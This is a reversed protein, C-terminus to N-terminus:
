TFSVQYGTCLKEVPLMEKADLPKEYECYRTITNRYFKNKYKDEYVIWERAYGLLEGTKQSERLVAKWQMEPPPHFRLEETKTNYYFEVWTRKCRYVEWSQYKRLFYSKVKMLYMLANRRDIYAKAEKPEVWSYGSYGGDGHTLNRKPAKCYFYNGTDPDEYMEWEFNFTKKYIAAQRLCSWLRGDMMDERAICENLINARREVTKRHDEEGIRTFFSNLNEERRVMLTEERAQTATPANRIVKDQVLLEIARRKHMDKLNVNCGYVDILLIIVREHSNVVNADCAMHLATRRWRNIMDVAAQRFVYRLLVSLDSPQPITKIFDQDGTLENTVIIGTEPRPDFRALVDEMIEECSRPIMYKVDDDMNKLFYLAADHLWAKEFRRSEAQSLKMEPMVQFIEEVYEEFTKGKKARTKDSYIIRTLNQGRFALYDVVEYSNKMAALHLPTNGHFDPAFIRGGHDILVECCDRHGNLAAIHVANRGRVDIANVEAGYQLLIKCVNAHGYMAAYTLARMRESTHRDLVELNVQVGCKCYILVFDDYGCRCAHYFDLIYARQGDKEMLCGLENFRLKQAFHLHEKSLDIYRDILLQYLVEGDIGKQATQRVWELFEEHMKVSSDTLDIYPHTNQFHVLSSWALIRHMLAMNRHPHFGKSSLIAVIKGSDVGRLLNDDIWQMWDEPFEGPKCRVGPMADGLNLVGATAANYKAERTNEGFGQYRKTLYESIVEGKEVRHWLGTLQAEVVYITPNTVSAPRVEVIEFKIKLNRLNAQRELEALPTANLKELIAGFQALREDGRKIMAIFHCFEDFEIEGSGDKDVLQLMEEAKEISFDMGLYHLIRKTEHKDITGSHNADFKQFLNVMEEFEMPTIIEIFEDPCKFGDVIMAHEQYYRAKDAEIDDVDLDGMQSMNLADESVPQLAKSPTQISQNGDEDGRGQRSNALSLNASENDWDGGITSIDEMRDNSADM